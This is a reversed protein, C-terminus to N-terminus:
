GRDHNEKEKGTPNLYDTPGTRPEWTRFVGVDDLKKQEKRFQILRYLKRDKTEINELTKVSKDCEIVTQKRTEVEVSAKELERCSLLLERELFNLHAKFHLYRATTIGNEQEQEFLETELRITENLREVHSQIRMKLSVAAGLAAQAERFVFERHRKLSKLRFKFPM